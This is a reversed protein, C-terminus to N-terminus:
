QIGILKFKIINVHEGRSQKNLKKLLDVSLFKLLTSGPRRLDDWEKTNFSKSIEDIKASEPDSESTEVASVM